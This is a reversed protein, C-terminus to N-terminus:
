ITRVETRQKHEERGYNQYFVHMRGEHLSEPHSDWKNCTPFWVSPLHTPLYTPLYARSMGIWIITRDIQRPSIMASWQYKIQPPKDGLEEVQGYLGTGTSPTMCGSSVPVTIYKTTM